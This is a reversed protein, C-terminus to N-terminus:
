AGKTWKIKGMANLWKRFLEFYLTIYLMITMLWIVAINFNYTDHYSSIFYKKPAFFHTRYDLAHNPDNPTNFIPDVQQVLQGQYEILRDKEGINRVLDSLSENFYRDKYANLNYGRASDSEFVYALKEKKRVAENYANLYHKRLNDLYSTIAGNVELFVDLMGPVDFYLHQGVLM